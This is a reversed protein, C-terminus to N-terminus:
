FVMQLMNVVQKLALKANCCLKFSNQTLLPGPYTSLTETETHFKDSAPLCSSLTIRALLNCSQIMFDIKKKYGFQLQSPCLVM